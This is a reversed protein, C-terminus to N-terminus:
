RAQFACIMEVTRKTRVDVVALSCAQSYLGPVILVLPPPPPLSLETPPSQALKGHSFSGYTARLGGTPLHLSLCM